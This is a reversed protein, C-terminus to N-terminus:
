SFWLGTQTDALSLHAQLARTSAVVASRSTNKQIIYFGNTSKEIVRFVNSGDSWSLGILDPSGNAEALVRAEEWITSSDIQASSDPDLWIEARGRVGLKRMADRAANKQDAISLEDRKQPAEAIHKHQKELDKKNKHDIHHNEDEIKTATHINRFTAYKESLTSREPLKVAPAEGVNQPSSLHNALAQEKWRKELRKEIKKVMRKEKRSTPRLPNDSQLYGQGRMVAFTAYAGVNYLRAAEEEKKKLRNARFNSVVRGIGSLAARHEEVTEHDYTSPIAGSEILPASTIPQKPTDPDKGPFDSDYITPGSSKQLWFAPNNKGYPRSFDTTVGEGMPWLNKNIRELEEPSLGPKPVEPGRQRESPPM